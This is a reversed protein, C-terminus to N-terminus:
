LESAARTGPNQTKFKVLVAWDFCACVWSILHNVAYKKNLLWQHVRFFEAALVPDTGARVRTMLAFLLELVFTKKM